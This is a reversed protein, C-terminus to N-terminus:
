RGVPKFLLTKSDTRVRIRWTEDAALRGALVLLLAIAVVRM